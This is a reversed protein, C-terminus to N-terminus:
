KSEYWNNAESMEAILPVKLLIATEMGNKLIKKVEEKEEESAEILLEDHIQLVIKSKM